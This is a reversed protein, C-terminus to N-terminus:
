QDRRGARRFFGSADKERFEFNKLGDASAAAEFNARQAAPVIPNWSLAQLEPQRALAQQVFDHFEQRTIGGQAAHFSAISYLVEMSRLISVHLKEAQEQALDYAHKKLEKQEWGRMTFCLGVSLIIGAGLVFSTWAPTLRPQLISPVRGLDIKWAAQKGFNNCRRIFPKAVFLFGANDPCQRLNACPHRINGIRGCRRPKSYNTSNVWDPWLCEAKFCGHMSGTKRVTGCIWCRRM